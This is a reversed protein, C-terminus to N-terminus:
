LALMRCSARHVADSPLAQLVQYTTRIGRCHEHSCYFSGHPAGKRPAFLVTASDTSRTTHEHQWPCDVCVRVDDIRRGLMGAEAFALALLSDGVDATPAGRETLQAAKAVVWSPLEALDTYLPHSSHEWAYVAGSKHLSPAAVIYGDAKVDVGAALASSFRIGEPQKFLIHRGGGGTIAEVTEPLEGHEHLLDDLSEEGGNRPDIDLAMIGSDPTCAIGINATPSSWWWRTITAINTTASRHGRPALRGNPVKGGPKLPFVPWRLRQAYAM